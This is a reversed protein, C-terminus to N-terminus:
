SGPRGAHAAALVVPDDANAVAVDDPRRQGLHSAKAAAYSAMDEHWDLHDPRPEALHGGPASRRPSSWASRRRRSWWWTSTSTSPTSSPCTTTAPWCRGSGSAADLMGAVMTTVTTKGNTGTVAVLPVSSWRAALEFETWLAPHRGRGPRPRGPPAPARRAPCSCTPRRGAGRRPRRRPRWSRWAWRRGARRGPDPDTPRGTRRWWWRGGRRALQRAAAEGPWASASSWRGSAQGMLRDGPISLFDAYYLGIAVATTLGALIWFRIIVTTEPWGGLEFHHHIPAM